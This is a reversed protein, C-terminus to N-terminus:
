TMGVLRSFAGRVLSVEFDETACRWANFALRRRLAPDVALRDIASRLKRPDRRDVVLAAEHERLYWAVFSDAPVHALIPRGAGLYEGLKGPSSTRVLEPFHSEFALPLFLVDASRQVTPVEDVALHGHFVIPGVIGEAALKAPALATYIHLRAPAGPLALAAVLNRFADFHAEYIAGTFVIRLEESADDSEATPEEYASLDVPNRVIAADAGYRERVVSATFENPAIVAAADLMVRRILWTIMSWSRSFKWLHEAHAWLEEYHDFLWPYFRAGTMRSALWAAPIDLLDEGGSCAIIADCRESRVIKAIRRARLIIGLPISVRERLVGKGLLSRHMFPLGPPIHYHRAPLAKMAVHESRISEPRMRSIVCYSDPELGGFIRALMVPNGSWMPPIIHTILAVKM